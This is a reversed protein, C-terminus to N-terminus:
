LVGGFHLALLISGIGIDALCLTLFVRGLADGWLTGFLGKMENM